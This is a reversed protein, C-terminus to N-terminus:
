RPVGTFQRPSIRVSAPMIIPICIHAYVGGTNRRTADIQRRDANKRGGARPCHCTSRHMKTRLETWSMSSTPSNAATCRPLFELRDQANVGFDIPRRRSSRRIRNGALDVWPAAMPQVPQLDAMARRGADGFQALFKAENATAFRRWGQTGLLLDVALPARPDNADLYIDADALEKVDDELLVMAPLHPARERKEIMQLVSSDTATIGVIASVPKGADDTTTVTINATGAPTYSTRDASVTVHLSKAPQRFVLREALPKGSSDKVTATLVGDAWAPPTM